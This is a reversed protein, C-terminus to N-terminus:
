LINYKFKFKCSADPLDVDEVRLKIDNINHMTNLSDKLDAFEESDSTRHM